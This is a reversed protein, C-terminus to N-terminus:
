AVSRRAQEAQNTWRFISAHQRLWLELALAYWLTRGREGSRGNRYADYAMRLQGGQLFGLGEAIPASLLTEVQVTAKERLSYDIFPGLRTKDLRLLLPEPLIERLARRLMPKHTGPEFLHRPRAALVLEVLRRDLFPHRAEIGFPAAVRDYWEVSRLYSAQELGAQIEEAATRRARRANQFSALREPLGAARAFGPDIWEPIEPAPLPRRTLRRLADELRPPLLPALLYRYLFHWDRGHSRAYRLIEAAARLDGRRLRDAYVRGSGRLLDDAGHGTLLVQAGQDQLRRLLERFATDFSLVPTDIEPAQAEADSLLWFREAEVAVPDIELDALLIQRYRREDCAALQEFHLSGALLKAPAGRRLRERHALAAVASSDLGGSLAIAVNGSETQLRDGVAAQLLTRFREATEDASWTGAAVAAPHWYRETREGAATALFRHGPPLRRICAFFTRDPAPEQATLFDGITQLDLEPAVEPHGLLCLVESAMALHASLRVLHFPKVGLPDRAALLSRNPRDWVVFSFDGLLHEPCRDGWQLYAALILDAVSPRERRGDLWPALTRELEATEDLRAAAVVHIGGRAAQLGGAALLEPRPGVSVSTPEAGALHRHRSRSAMRRVIEADLGPALGRFASLDALACFASMRDIGPGEM